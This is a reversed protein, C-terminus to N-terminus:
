GSRNARRAVIERRLKLRARSLRTGVTALPLDLTRAIQRYSRGRLEHLVLVQRFPKPIAQLAARVDDTATTDTAESTPEDSVLTDLVEDISVADPQRAIRRLRDVHMRRLITILWARLHAGSTVKGLAPLARVITDQVLDHADQPNLLLRRALALLYPREADVESATALTNQPEAGCVDVTM